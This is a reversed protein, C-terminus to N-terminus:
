GPGGAGVGTLEDGFRIVADVLADVDALTTRPNIYCPRIAFRGAVVTSSPVQGTERRLRELIRSNLSDGDTGAPARYRLCVVSLQPEMLLELRPNAMARDAVRRAYAVHRDVRAIVGARGIERLVAWVMVGRPPASLELSQDAWRGNMRDFQSVAPADHPTFTGELYAADGEAFARTLVGEDRVFTAAVGVGTALWKHPDVIWSDALELGAYLPALRPSANGILGYAGDVHLWSGFRTAIAAVGAIDDVSGTDTTGAIAVTAIPVIGERADAALAAELQDLRIRGDGDVPIARVAQRGLGLVAAARHVTRHALESAYVRGRLGAPAGDEAVNFGLREFASQRASGLGVLNATSGGSSYVGTVGDPLGCLQALWRLSDHELRNFAHITYRQGGAFAMATEGIAGGTSAGTTIFGVFGPAGIRSGEAVLAGLEDVMADLGIGAEPVPGATVADVPREYAVFPGSAHAAHFADIAPGLRALAQSARGTEAAESLLLDDPLPTPAEAPPMLATDRLHDAAEM